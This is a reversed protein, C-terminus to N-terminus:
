KQLSRVGPIVLSQKDASARANLAPMNPLVYTEPVVGDAVARCLKKIDTVEASWRRTIGLGKVPEYTPAAIPPPVYSVPEIYAEVPPLPVVDDEGAAIAANLAAEEEAKRIAAAEEERRKRDAEAAARAEAELRAQEIRRLKEQEDQWKVIAAKLTAEAETIPKLYEGEKATIAKHAKHASEKMPAFEDVIKKRWTSLTIKFNAAQTYTEASNITIAKAQEPLTLAEPFEPTIETMEGEEM